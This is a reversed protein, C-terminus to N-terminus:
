NYSVRFIDLGEGDVDKQYMKFLRWQRQMAQTFAHNELETFEQLSIVKENYCYLIIGSLTISAAHTRYIDKKTM